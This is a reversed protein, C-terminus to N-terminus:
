RGERFGQAGADIEKQVIEGYFSGWETVPVWASGDWQSVRGMGGGQHDQATITIPPMLGEADFNEIREFGDKLRTGTLEGEGEELALRAAELNIEHALDAMGYDALSIRQANFTNTEVIDAGAALYDAHIGQIIDPRTLTLLDNNGRQDHGECGCGAGHAHGEAAHLADFGQAFREGRYDAESLEHRQIMTGMAGDLVLIRNALATDLAAVRDPHLWSM